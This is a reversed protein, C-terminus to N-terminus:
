RQAPASPPPLTALAVSPAAGLLEAFSKPRLMDGLTAFASVIAGGVIFRLIYETMGTDTVERAHSAAQGADM